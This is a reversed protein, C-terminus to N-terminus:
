KSSTGAGPFPLDFKPPWETKAAFNYPLAYQDLTANAWRAAWILGKRRLLSETRVARRLRLYDDWDGEFRRPWNTALPHDPLRIGRTNLQRWHRQLTDPTAPRGRGDLPLSGHKGWEIAVVPRSGTVPGELLRSHFYTIVRTGRGSAPDYVVWVIEHDTPDNDEPFDIDDEWFLHYAICPFEPHHLAVVDRLEFPERDHTLLTPALALVSRREGPSPARAPEHTLLRAYDRSAAALERRLHFSLARDRLLSLERVPVQGFGSLALEELDIAAPLATGSVPNARVVARDPFAVAYDGLSPIPEPFDTSVLQAGSAFAAARRKPDPVLDADARTRVLFGQAVLSRIRGGEAIPDNIKFWAAAPHDPDVSPFLVRNELRPNGALLLDRTADTNDLLFVLKGRSSALAPWGNARVAERLTAHLGRVEDPLLLKGPPVVTRIEHEVSDLLAATWPIVPTFDPGASDSKLEILVFVPAHAPQSASWAVIEDLAERFTAVRTLFDFDPVHLVKTGPFRLSASADHGVAALRPGAPSAFRGGEPDAYLDLELQRMGLRSLQERLPAHTYALTSATRSDRSRVLDLVAPHPAVHYSNHSGVVQIQDLRPPPLPTSSGAFAVPHSAIWAMWVLALTGAGPRSLRRHM